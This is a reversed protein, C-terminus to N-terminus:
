RISAMMIEHMKLIEEIQFNCFCNVFFRDKGYNSLFKALLANPKAVAIYHYKNYKKFFYDYKEDNLPKETNKKIYNNRIENILVYNESDTFDVYKKNNSPM